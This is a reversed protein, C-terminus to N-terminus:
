KAWCGFHFHGGRCGGSILCIYTFSFSFYLWSFIKSQDSVSSYSDWFFRDSSSMNRDSLSIEGLQSFSSLCCRCCTYFTVWGEMITPVVVFKRTFKGLLLEPVHCKGSRVYSHCGSCDHVIKKKWVHRTEMM